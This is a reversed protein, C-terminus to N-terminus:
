SFGPMVSEDTTLNKHLFSHHNKALSTKRCGCCINDHLVDLPYIVYRLRETYYFFCQMIVMKLSTQAHPEDTLKHTLTNNQWTHRVALRHPFQQFMKLRIQLINRQLRLASVRTNLLAGLFGNDLFSFM